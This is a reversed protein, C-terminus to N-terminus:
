LLRTMGTLLEPLIGQMLARTKDQRQELAALEANMDTLVSAIGTQEPIQRNPSAECGHSGSRGRGSEEAIGEGSRYSEVFRRYITPLKDM